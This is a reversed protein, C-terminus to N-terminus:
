KLHSVFVFGFQPNVFVSGFSKIIKCQIRLKRFLQFLQYIELRYSVSHIKTHKLYSGESISIRVMQLQFSSELLLTISPTIHHAHLLPLDQIVTMVVLDITFSLNSGFVILTQPITANIVKVLNWIFTSGNFQDCNRTRKVYFEVRTIHSKLVTNYNLFNNFFNSLSSWHFDSFSREFTIDMFNFKSYKTTTKFSTSLSEFSAWCANRLVISFYM